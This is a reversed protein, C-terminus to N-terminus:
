NGWRYFPTIIKKYHLTKHFNASIISTYGRLHATSESFYVVCM